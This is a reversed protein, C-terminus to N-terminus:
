LCLFCIMWNLLQCLSYTCNIWLLLRCKRKSSNKKQSLSRSLNESSIKITRLNEFTSHTLSSLSKIFSIFIYTLRGFTKKSILCENKFTSSSFGSSNRHIISKKKHSVSCSHGFSHLLSHMLFKMSSFKPWNFLM